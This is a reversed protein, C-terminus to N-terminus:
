TIHAMDDLTIKGGTGNTDAHTNAIRDHTTMGLKCAFSQHDANVIELGLFVLFIMDVPQIHVVFVAQHEAFFKVAALVGIESNIGGIALIVSCVYVIDGTIINKGDAVWDPILLLHPCLRARM